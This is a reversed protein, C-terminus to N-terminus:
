LKRQASPRVSEWAAWDQGALSDKGDLADILHPIDDFGWFRQKGLSMAPVGFHGAAIAAETQDRLRQKAPLTEADALSIVGLLEARSLSRELTEKNGADAANAWIESFLADVLRRREAMTMEVSCLRLSPLPNFPHAAPPQLPINEVVAKRVVDRIMWHAKAPIEAPGRQHNAKLFGAFLVPVPELLFTHEAELRRLKVWALYANHSIFDFLFPVTRPAQNSM